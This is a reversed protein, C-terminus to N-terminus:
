PSDEKAAQAAAQLKNFLPLAAQAAGIGGAKVAVDLLQALANAEDTTLKLDIM